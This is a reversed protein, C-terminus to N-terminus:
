HMKQHQARMAKAKLRHKKVIEKKKKKVLMKVKAAMVKMKKDVKKSLEMKQGMAMKGMDKAKGVLRQMIGARVQKHAKADVNVPMSKRANRMKKMKTSAKKAMLKMRRAMAKRVGFGMFEDLEYEEVFDKYRKSMKVKRHM